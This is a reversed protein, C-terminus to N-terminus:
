GGAADNHLDDYLKRKIREWRQRAHAMAAPNSDCAVCRRGKSHCAEMITCTGALPDLILDDPQSFMDLVHELLPLSQEWYDRSKERGFDPLMDEIERPSKWDGKAFIVIPKWCQEIGHSSITRLGDAQYPHCFTWVYRLHKEMERILVNLYYNSYYFVALGGPKLSREAFAALDPMQSLWDGVYPPDTKLLDVTEPKVGGLGELDQFRCNYIRIRENPCFCSNDPLQPNEYEVTKKRKRMAYAKAVPMQECDARVEFTENIKMAKTARTRGIGMKDLKTEWQGHKGCIQKLRLLLLGLDWYLGTMYAGSQNIKMNRDIILQEVAPLDLGNIDNGDFPENPVKEGNM